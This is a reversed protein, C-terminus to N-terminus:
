RRSFTRRSRTSRTSASSRAPVSSRCAWGTRVHTAGPMWQWDQDYKTDPVVLGQKTDCIRLLLPNERTDFTIARTTQVDQYGEYRRLASVVFHTHDERLMVNASDYSVLKSLYDLLTELVRELSLNETLAINADRLIETESRIAEERALLAPFDATM